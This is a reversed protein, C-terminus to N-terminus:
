IKKTQLVYETNLIERQAKGKSNLVIYTYISDLIALQAIRSSMALISRKTEEAKTFLVIDSVDVIPPKGFNTICITTAGCARSLELAEIVDKSAGSHSIGLAVSGRKLHCAVLAQMHNDTCAQAVLGLRSFKHAADQAVPSSSGLGFTVIRDACLLADAARLLEDPNLVTETNRLSATIDLIRNQYLVFPSDDEKINGGFASTQRFEGALKIKLAGFGSLDLRRSFRVLTADGCQCKSSLESISMGVIDDTHELIYDAVRKEAPGMQEYLLKISQLISEM